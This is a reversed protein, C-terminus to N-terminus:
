DNEDNSANGPNYSRKITSIVPPHPKAQIPKTSSKGDKHLAFRPRPQGVAKQLAKNKKEIRSSVKKPSEDKEKTKPM